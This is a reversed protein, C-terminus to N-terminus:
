SGDSGGVVKQSENSLGITGSSSGSHGSICPTPAVPPAVPNAAGLLRGETGTARAVGADTSDTGGSLPLSPLKEVAGRVDLLRPDTYVGMTLKIDSHRM